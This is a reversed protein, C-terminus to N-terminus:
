NVIKRREEWGVAVEHTCFTKGKWPTQHEPLTHYAQAGRLDQKRSGPDRKGTTTKRLHESSLKL